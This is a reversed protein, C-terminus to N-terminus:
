FEFDFSLLLLIYFKINILIVMKDLEQMHRVVELSPQWEKKLWIMDLTLPLIAPISLLTTLNTVKNQDRQCYKQEMKSFLWKLAMM